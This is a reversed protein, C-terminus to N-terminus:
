NTTTLTPGTIVLSSTTCSVTVPNPTAITITSGSITVTGTDSVSGASCSYTYVGSVDTIACTDSGTPSSKAYNVVVNNHTPVKAGGGTGQVISGSVTVTCSAVNNATFAPGTIPTVGALTVSGSSPSVSGGTANITVTGPLANLITCSYTNTSGSTISCTGGSLSLSVSNRQSGTISGTITYDMTTQPVASFTPGTITANSGLTVTGSIPTVNGGSANITVVPGSVSTVTCSYTHDLHNTCSGGSAGTLTFTVSNAQTGTVSGTITYGIPTSGAVLTPGSVNTQSSSVNVNTSTPTVNGGTAAITLQSTSTNTTIACSYSWVGSAVSSACGNGNVTVVVLNADPGTISGTVNYTVTSGCSSVNTGLPVNLTGAALFRSMFFSPVSLNATNQFRNCDNSNGTADVILFDQCDFSQNIGEYGVVVNSSNLRQTAYLRATSNATLAVNSAIDEAFCVKKNHFDATDEILGVKGYWGGNVAAYAHTGSPCGTGGNACSGGFYCIYDSQGTTIPFKCYANDSFTVKYGTSVALSVVPNSGNPVIGNYVNGRISHVIGGNFQILAKGTSDLLYVHGANDAYQILNSGDTLTIAGQIQNLDFQKNTTESSQNNPSNIRGSLGNGLGQANGLILGPDIWTVESQMDVTESASGAGWTVKVRLNKRDPSTADAITWSRTFTANSGTVSETGSTATLDTDFGTKTINNRFQEVKAEALKVAELRTKNEGSGHMLGGQLSSLALLGLAVVVTAILVEILGIGRQTKIRHTYITM